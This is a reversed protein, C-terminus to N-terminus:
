LARRHVEVRETPALSPAPDRDPHYWLGNAGIYYGLRMYMERQWGSQRGNLVHESRPVGPISPGWYKVRRKQGIAECIRGKTPKKGSEHIRVMALKFEREKPTWPRRSLDVNWKKLDEPLVYQVERRTTTHYQHEVIVEGRLTGDGLHQSVANVVAQTARELDIISPPLQGPAGILSPCSRIAERVATTISVPESTL